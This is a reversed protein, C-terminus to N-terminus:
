KSLSVKKINTLYYVGIMSIMKIVSSILIGICFGILGKYSLLFLSLGVYIVLYTANLTVQWKLECFKLIVANLLSSIMNIIISITIINLYKLAAEAFQPYLMKLIPESILMLIIYGIVGGSICLSFILILTRNNIDKLKSIYSLFVGTIPGIALALTKGLITATYYISVSLGGLLPFLLLKDIYVTSTNLVGSFLLASTQYTTKKFLKTKKYPEKLIKTKQVVFLFSCTAGFLYIFQWYQTILFLIYGVGYGLSVFLSDFLIYKYNLEIRFEVIIYSKIIMMVSTILLLIINLPDISIKFCWLGISMLVLNLGIFLGLLINFDGKINLEQYTNNYILRANNLVSGLTLASFNLWTVITILYGYSTSDLKLAVIPLLLFQLFFIPFASALINLIVDSFIKKNM